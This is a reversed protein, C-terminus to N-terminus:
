EVGLVIKAAALEDELNDDPEIFRRFAKDYDEMINFSERENAKNENDSNPTLKSSENKFYVDTSKVSSFSEMKKICPNFIQNIISEEVKSPIDISNQELLNLDDEIIM